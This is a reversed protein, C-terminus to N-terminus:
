PKPGCGPKACKETCIRLDQADIKHDGNADRPDGVAAFSNLSHAIFGIDLVDVTGRGLTDCAARGLVDSLTIGPIQFPADPGLKIGMIDRINALFPGMVVGADSGPTTAGAFLEDPTLQHDHNSDFGNFITIVLDPNALFSQVDDESSGGPLFRLFGRTERVGEHYLRAWMGQVGQTGQPLDYFGTTVNGDAYTYECGKGETEVPNLPAGRIKFATGNVVEFLTFLMWNKYNPIYVALKSDFAALQNLTQAFTGNATRYSFEGNALQISLNVCEARAAAKRVKQVAPVLLGILIAIIAIVVLLEILTFGRTRKM